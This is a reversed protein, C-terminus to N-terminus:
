ACTQLTQGACCSLRQFQEVSDSSALPTAGDIDAAASEPLNDIALLEHVSRM